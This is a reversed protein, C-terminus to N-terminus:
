DKKEGSIVLMGGDLKVNINKESIGPLEATIEYAGDNEAVDVTPSLDFGKLQTPLSFARFPDRHLFRDFMRDMEHHFDDFGALASSVIPRERLAQLRNTMARRREKMM